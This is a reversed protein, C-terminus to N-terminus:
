GRAVTVPMAAVRDSGQGGAQWMTVDFAATGARRGFCRQPISVVMENRDGTYRTVNRGTCPVSTERLGGFSLFGEQRGATRFAYRGAGPHNIYITTDSYRRLDRVRLVLRVTADGNRVVVRTLDASAPADGVADTVARTAASASPTVLLSAGLSLALACLLSSPKM